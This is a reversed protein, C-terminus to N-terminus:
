PKDDWVVRAAAIMAKIDERDKLEEHEEATPRRFGHETYIQIRKCYACISVDGPRPQNDKHDSTFGDVKAGCNACLPSFLPSMSRVDGVVTDNDRIDLQAIPKNTKRAQEIAYAYTDCPGCPIMVFAKTEVHSGCICGCPLREVGTLDKLGTM